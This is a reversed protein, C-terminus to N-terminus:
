NSGEQLRRFAESCSCPLVDGGHREYSAFKLFIGLASLLLATSIIIAVPYYLNGALELQSYKIVMILAELALAICVTGIFRPLTRKLMVAVDHDENASGYEKSIVMALEFVALAIIGTNIIKIMVQMIEVGNNIDEVVIFLMSILMVASLGFFISSFLGAFIARLSFNFKIKSTIAEAAFTLTQESM